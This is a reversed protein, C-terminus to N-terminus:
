RYMFPSQACLFVFCVMILVVDIYLYPKCFKEIKQIKGTHITSIYKCLKIQNKMEKM